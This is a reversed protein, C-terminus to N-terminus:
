KAVTVRGEVDASVQKGEKNMAVFGEMLVDRVTIKLDTYPKNKLMDMKDGGAAIYDSVAYTYMNDATLAVGNIVINEAKGDKITYAVGAVPWGGLKAMQNFM